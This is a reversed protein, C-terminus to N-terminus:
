FAYRAFARNAEAMKHINDRKKIADGENKYAALIEEALKFKMPKGKKAKAAEIIWRIGLSVRRKEPVECPVQYTAGGIRRARVEVSPKVNEVAKKLVEIPNDTKLREKIIDLCSYFIKQAITKKGHRMICNIFKGIFKDKYVPDPKLLHEFSKYKRPM